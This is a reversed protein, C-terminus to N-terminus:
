IQELIVEVVDFYDPSVFEYINDLYNVKNEWNQIISISYVM